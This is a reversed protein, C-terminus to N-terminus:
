DTSYSDTAYEQGFVFTTLRGNSYRMKVWNTLVARDNGWDSWVLRGNGRSDIAAADPRTWRQLCEQPSSILDEPIRSGNSRLYQVYDPIPIEIGILTEREKSHPSQIIEETVLHIPVGTRERTRLRSVDGWPRTINRTQTEAFGHKILRELQHHNQSSAAIKELEPWTMIGTTFHSVCGILLLGLLSVSGSLKM